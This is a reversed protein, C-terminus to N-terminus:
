KVQNSDCVLVDGVIIEYGHLHTAQMNVPLHYIKGEENVVMIKDNTLSVIEIYGGVIERLEEYSFDTGNKPEVTKRKWNAYIITAM